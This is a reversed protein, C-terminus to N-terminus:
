KSCVMESTRACKDARFSDMYQLDACDVEKTHTQPQVRAHMLNMQDEIAGIHIATYRIEDGERERVWLFNQLLTQHELRCALYTVPGTIHPM